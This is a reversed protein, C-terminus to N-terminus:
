TRLVHIHQIGNGIMSAESVVLLPTVAIRGTVFSNLRSDSVFSNSTLNDRCPGYFGSTIHVESIIRLRSHQLTISLVVHGIRIDLGSGVIEGPQQCGGPFLLDGGGFGDADDGLSLLNETSAAATM